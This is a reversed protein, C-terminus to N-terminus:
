EGEADRRHRRLLETYLKDGRRKENLILASVLLRQSPWDHNADRVSAQLEKLREATAKSMRFGLKPEDSEPPRGRPKPPPRRSRTM